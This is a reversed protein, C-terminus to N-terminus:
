THITQTAHSLFAYIGAAGAIYIPMVLAIVRIVYITDYTSFMRLAAAVICSRALGFGM